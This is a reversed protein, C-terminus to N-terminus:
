RQLYVDHYAQRIRDPAFKHIVTDVDVKIGITSEIKRQFDDIDGYNFVHYGHIGELYDAIRVRESMLVPTGHCLAELVVYSFAEYKSPVVLLAAQRYLRALEDDSIDIHQHFDRRAIHGRGVCHVDYTGQPLHYLHDLGKVPDDTRGVFLIMRPNREVPSKTAAPQYWHPIQRVDPHLSSFFRTDDNNITTVVSACQRVAPKTLLSFFLRGLWPHRLCHFPHWHATYVVCKQQRRAEYLAQITGMATYGNIHVIDALGIAKRLASPSYYYHFLRSGIAPIDAVPLPQLDSDDQLLNYLAKCYNDTGGPYNQRIYLIKKRM